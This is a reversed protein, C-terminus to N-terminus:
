HKTLTPPIESLNIKLSGSTNTSPRIRFEKQEWSRLNEATDGWLIVCTLGDSLQKQPWLDGCHCCLCCQKKLMTVQLGTWVSTHDGFVCLRFWTSFIYYDAIKTKFLSCYQDHQLSTPWQVDRNNWWTLLNNAFVLFYTTPLPNPSFYVYRHKLWSKKTWVTKLGGVVLYCHELWGIQLWTFLKTQSLFFSCM